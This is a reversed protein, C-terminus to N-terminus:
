ELKLDKVEIRDFLEAEELANVVIQSFYFCCCKTLQAYIGKDDYGYVFKARKKHIPCLLSKVIPKAADKAYGFEQEPDIIPIM